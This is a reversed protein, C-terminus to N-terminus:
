DALAGYIARVYRDARDSGIIGPGMNNMMASITMRRGVDM